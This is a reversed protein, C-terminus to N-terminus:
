ILVSFSCSSTESTFHNSRSLITEAEQSYYVYTGNKIIDTVFLAVLNYNNAEAVEDLVHIYETIDKEIEFECAFKRISQFICCRTQHAWELIM